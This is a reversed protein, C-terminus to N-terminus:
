HRFHRLGTFLMAIGYENAAAIAEDDRKSGGPQIIATVGAQAATDVGDRFPFYADSGLVSGKAREGAKRIAILTSDVRSMQGAGIGVTQTGQVLVIANSKVHKAVKFAFRLGKEEEPTPKRETVVRIEYDNWDGYDADQILLGGAVPKMTKPPYGQRDMMGPLELIRRSKKEAFLTLVGPAYGPAIMAEVFGSEHIRRATEPDVERNVGIISGYASLPDCELAKEYAEALTKATALGCPNTHKIVCAAPEDFDRVISLAADLDYINNFSLEKGQHVVAQSVGAFSKGVEEYFAASQHPNEGYRLPYVRRYHADVTEPWAEEGPAALRDGLFSAIVTDYKSTHRFAEVALQQRTQLTLCGGERDMESELAGYVDPSTVSAVWSYNKAAARILTVGGIDIQEIAQEITVGPKAITESFPYLNVVVLDIPEIGQQKMQATHHSDDRKALLAGHVKPHLTKVRGGLIEPFGTLQEIALVPIGQQQLTKSTGGTSVIQVGRQSLFRAFPILNRKDAVSILARKIPLSQPNM